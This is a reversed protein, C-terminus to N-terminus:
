CEEPTHAVCGADAFELNVVREGECGCEAFCEGRGRAACGEAVKM